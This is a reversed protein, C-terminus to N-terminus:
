GTDTKDVATVTASPRIAIGARRSRGILLDVLNPDLERLPRPGRDIVTPSSGARAAIHASEFSIFGGRLLRSSGPSQLSASTQWM